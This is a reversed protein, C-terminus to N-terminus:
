DIPYSSHHLALKPQLRLILNARVLTWIRGLIINHLKGLAISDRIERLESPYILYLSHLMDAAIENLESICKNLLCM